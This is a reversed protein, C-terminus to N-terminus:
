EADATPLRLADGPSRQAREPSSAADEVWDRRM